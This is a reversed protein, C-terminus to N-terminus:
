LIAATLISTYTITIYDKEPESSTEALSPFCQLLKLCQLQQATISSMSLHVEAHADFLERDAELKFQCCMCTQVCVCVNMCVFNVM